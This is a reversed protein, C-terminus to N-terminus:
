NNLHQVQENGDDHVVEVVQGSVRGDQPGVMEVLEDSDPRLVVRARRLLKPNNLQFTKKAAKKLSFAAKSNIGVRYGFIFINLTSMKVAAM